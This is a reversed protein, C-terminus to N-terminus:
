FGTLFHVSDVNSCHMLESRLFIKRVQPKNKDWTTIVTIPHSVAETRVELLIRLNTVM